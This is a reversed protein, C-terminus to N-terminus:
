TRAPPCAPASRPTRTRPSRRTPRRPLARPSSSPLSPSTTSPRRPPTSLPRSPISAISLFPDAVQSAEDHPLSSILHRSCALGPPLQRAGPEVRRSRPFSSLLPPCVNVINSMNFLTPTHNSKPTPSLSLPHNIPPFLAARTLGEARQLGPWAARGAPVREAQSAGWAARLGHRRPLRKGGVSRCDSVTRGPMHSRCGAARRDATAGGTPLTRSGEQVDGSSGLTVERERSGLSVYPLPERAPLLCAARAARDTSGTVVVVVLRSRRPNLGWRAAGAEGRGGKVGLAWGGGRRDPLLDPSGGRLRTV